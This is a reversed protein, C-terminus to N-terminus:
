SRTLENDYYLFHVNLKNPRGFRQARGIVQQEIDKKMKHYFIIDTTMELNLGTGFNNSNLLLINLSGNKYM